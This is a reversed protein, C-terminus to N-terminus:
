QKKQQPWSKFLNARFSRREPKLVSVSYVGIDSESNTDTDSDSDAVADQKVDEKVADNTKTKLPLYVSDSSDSDSGSGSESDSVEAELEEMWRELDADTEPQRNFFQDRSRKRKPALWSSYNLRDM